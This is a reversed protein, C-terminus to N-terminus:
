ARADRHMDHFSKLSKSLKKRSALINISLVYCFMCNYFVHIQERYPSLFMAQTWM